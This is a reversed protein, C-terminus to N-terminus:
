VPSGFCATRTRDRMTYLCKDFASREFGAARLEQDLTSYWLQPADNKGYINGLLVILSDDAVGPIGGPPMECLLPGEDRTEDTSELSAGKIDGFAIQWGNSVMLQLALSRAM